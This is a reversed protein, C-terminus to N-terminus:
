WIISMRGEEYPSQVVRCVKSDHLGFSIMVRKPGIAQKWSTVPKRDGM